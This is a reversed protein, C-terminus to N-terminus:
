RVIQKGLYQNMQNAERVEKETMEETGDMPDYAEAELNDPDGNTENDYQEEENIARSKTTTTVVPLTEIPKEMRSKSNNNRLTPIVREDYPTSPKNYMLDGSPQEFRNSNRPSIM